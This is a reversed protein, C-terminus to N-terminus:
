RAVFNSNYNRCLKKHCIFLMFKSKAINLRLRNSDLWKCLNQLEKSIKRQTTDIEQGFSDITSNLTTDHAYLICNFKNTCKVIDNIYISFFLPGLISGQSIGSKITQLSSMEDDIQVYQSRNALYSKLLQLSANTVGYYTLKDLLIDHSIKDFAKSLDLNIPIKHDNLQNLLRDILELSALETSANKMFGYQQACFLKNNIFYENLQDHIVSEFIKSIVPLVSIPRYNQFEKNSDKKFIPVVKAIKLKDPFIGTTLTQNIIFTISSSINNSILKLVESSIGDHGKSKSLKVNKIM